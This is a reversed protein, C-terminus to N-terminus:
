KDIFVKDFKQSFIGALYSTELLFLYPYVIGSLIIKIPNLGKQVLQM